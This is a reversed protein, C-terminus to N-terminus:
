AWLKIITRIIFVVLGVAAIIFGCGLMVIREYEKRDNDIM